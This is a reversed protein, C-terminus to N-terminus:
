GEENERDDLFKVPNTLFRECAVTKNSFFYVLIHALVTLTTMAYMKLKLGVLSDAIVAFPNHGFQEENRNQQGSDIVMLM